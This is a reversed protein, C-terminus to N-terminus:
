YLKLDSTGFSLAPVRGNVVVLDELAHVFHRTGRWPRGHELSQDLACWGLGDNVELKEPSVRLGAPERGGSTNDLNSVAGVREEWGRAVASGLGDLVGYCQGRAKLNCSLLADGLCNAGVDPDPLCIM